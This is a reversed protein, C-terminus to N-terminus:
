LTGVQSRNRQPLRIAPVLPSQLRSQSSSVARRAQLGTLSQVLSTQMIASTLVFTQLSWSLHRLLAALPLLTHKLHKATTALEIATASALSCHVIEAHFSCLPFHYFM